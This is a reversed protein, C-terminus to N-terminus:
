EMKGITKGFVLTFMKIKIPLYGKEMIPIRSGCVKMGIVLMM